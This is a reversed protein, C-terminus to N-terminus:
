ASTVLTKSISRGVSNVGGFLRRNLSQSLVVVSELNKEMSGSWAHGYMMPVDFMSFFDGSTARGSVAYPKLKPDAPKLILSVQHMAAQRSAVHAALLANADIDM